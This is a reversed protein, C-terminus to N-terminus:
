FVFRILTTILLVDVDFGLLGGAAGLCCFLGGGFGDFRLCFCFVCAGWFLRWILLGM